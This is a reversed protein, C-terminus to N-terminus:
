NTKEPVDTDKENLGGIELFAKYTVIDKLDDLDYAMAIAMKALAKYGRSFHAIVGDNFLKTSDVDAKGGFVAFGAISLRKDPVKNAQEILEKRFAEITELNEELISM